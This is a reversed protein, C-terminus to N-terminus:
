IYRRVDTVPRYRYHIKLPGAESGHGIVMGGGIYIAVHGSRGFPDGYLVLDGRRMNRSHVVRKGHNIQTGTWGALWNQGNVLDRVNYHSLGNWLCWTTFASCDLSTPYEGRWAKLNRKHWDWREAGQTYHILDTKKLGLYAAKMALDRAKIRHAPSLGSASAERPFPGPAEKNVADFNGEDPPLLAYPYPEVSKAPPYEGVPLWRTIEDTLSM